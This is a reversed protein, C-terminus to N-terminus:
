PKVWDTGPGDPQMYVLDVEGFFSGYILPRGYVGNFLDEPAIREPLAAEELLLFRPDTPHDLQILTM